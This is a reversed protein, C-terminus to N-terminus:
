LQTGGPFSGSRRRRTFADRREARNGAALGTQSTNLERNDSRVVINTQGLASSSENGGVLAASWRYALRDRHGAEARRRFARHMLKRYKGELSAKIWLRVSAWEPLQESPPARVRASVQSRVTSRPSEWSTDGGRLDCQALGSGCGPSAADQHGGYPHYARDVHGQDSQGQM